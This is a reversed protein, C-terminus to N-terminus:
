IAIEQLVLHTHQLLLVLHLMLALYLYVQALQVKIVKHEQAVQPVRTDKFAKIDRAEKTAQHEKIDRSAVYVLLEKHAM